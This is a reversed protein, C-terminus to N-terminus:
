VPKRFLRKMDERELCGTLIIVLIYLVTMAGVSLTLGVPQSIFNIIREYLLRSILGAAAAALFPKFFWNIFEMELSISKRIKDIELAIVVTLSM